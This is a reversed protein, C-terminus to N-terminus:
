HEPAKSTDGTNLGLEPGTAHGTWFLEHLVATSLRIYRYKGKSPRDKTKAWIPAAHKNVVQRPVLFVRASVMGRAELGFGAAAHLHLFTTDTELVVLGLHTASEAMSRGGADWEVADELGDGLDVSLISSAKADARVGALKSEVDYGPHRPPYLETDSYRTFLSEALLAEAFAGRIHATLDWHLSTRDWRGTVITASTLEAAM